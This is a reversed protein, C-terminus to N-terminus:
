DDIAMVRVYGELLLARDRIVNTTDAAQMPVYMTGRSSPPVPAPAPSVPAPQQTVWPVGMTGRTRQGLAVGTAVTSFATAWAAIRVLPTM